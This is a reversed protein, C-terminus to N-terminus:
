VSSLGLAQSLVPELWIGYTATIHFLDVYVGINNIIAPCEKQTCLWPIVNVFTSGSKAAASREAAQITASVAQNTPTSCVQVDSEHAALCLPGSTHLYPIDGLLIVRRGPASLDRLSTVLGSSFTSQKMMVGDNAYPNFDETAAVVLSPDFQQIRSFAWKKWTTCQTNPTSNIQNWFSVSPLPCPIKSLFLLSYGNSKAIDAVAPAWMESHSDGILVMRKTSASANFVCPAPASLEAQNAVCGQLGQPTYIDTKAGQLSPTLSNPLTSIRTAAAVASRVSPCAAWRCEKAAALQSGSPNQATTASAAVASCICLALLLGAALFASAFYTPLTRNVPSQAQM